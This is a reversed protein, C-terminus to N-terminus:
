NFDNAFLLIVKNSLMEGDNKEVIRVGIFCNVCAELRIGCNLNPLNLEDWEVSSENNEKENESELSTKM